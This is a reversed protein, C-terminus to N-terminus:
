FSSEALFEEAKWPIIISYISGITRAPLCGDFSRLGYLVAGPVSIDEPYIQRGPTVNLGTRETYRM